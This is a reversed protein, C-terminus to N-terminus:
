RHIIYAGCIRPINKVTEYHVFHHCPIKFTKQAQTRTFRNIGQVFGAADTGQRCHRENSMRNRKSGMMWEFDPFLSLCIITVLFISYKTSGQRKVMMVRIQFIV